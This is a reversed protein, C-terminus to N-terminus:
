MASKEKEAKAFSYFTGKKLGTLRMAEVATIEGAGWRQYVDNWNSPATVKPRGFKTGKKKATEIGQKQREKINLRERESVYSLIQLVLDSIFQRDLNGQDSTNLLPMDLVEIDAGIDKTIHEWQQKIAQYNRGLRDLSLVVLTDGCRLVPATHETGVLTNYAKRDFDKGSAKDLYIYREDIGAAKLQEIQRDLNQDNSSVRAYGYKM